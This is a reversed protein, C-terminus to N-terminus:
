AGREEIALTFSVYPYIDTEQGGEGGYFQSGVGAYKSALLKRLKSVHKPNPRMLVPVFQPPLGYRLISEVFLRVALVHIWSGFAESYSAACWAEFEARKAELTARLRQVAEANGKAAEADAAVEKATFGKARAAAKFDDAARRFLVVRLVSHEADEAALAASRPVVGFDVLTEYVKFFEPVSSRPVVVLLTVLNETDVLTEPGVVDSLDRVALSGTRKRLM